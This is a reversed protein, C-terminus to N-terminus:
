VNGELMFKYLLDIDDRNNAVIEIESIEESGAACLSALSVYHAIRSKLNINMDPSVLYVNGKCQGIVKFFDELNEVKLNTFKM